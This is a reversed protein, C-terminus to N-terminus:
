QNDRIYASPVPVDSPLGFQVATFGATSRLLYWVGDRYVAIDAKGDGDYDAPVSRDTSIGFHVADFGGSNNLRYWFGNSPRFVAIDTKGDGDYDAPVPTDSTLGFRVTRLQNNSSQRIVWVGGTPRFVAADIKGDGDYDNAVSIGDSVADVTVSNSGPNSSPRYSFLSSPPNEPISVLPTHVAVDDRGDGDWNGPAPLSGISGFQEARFM